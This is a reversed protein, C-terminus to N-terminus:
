DPRRRIGLARSPLAEPTRAATATRRDGRLLLLASPLMLVATVVSALEGLVAVLGFEFLARNKALLLSSYGIVTTASALLVAGGTNRITALIDRDSDAHFRGMMNLAYDAGIGFTIPFAVMSAFNLKIDFLRVVGVLWLVAVVIAGAMLATSQVRRFAVVMLSLVLAFAIATVLPGDRGLTRLLDYSLLLGGAVRASPEHPLSGRAAADRLNTAVTRLADGQWAKFTPRPFVLVARDIRGDAEAMGAVISRPVDAPQIPRLAEDSLMRNLRDRDESSLAARMRPTVLRAIEGLIAIKEGQDPPVIDDFTMVTAVVESLSGEATRRVEAGVRRTQEPGDTLIVIPSLYRGLVANM